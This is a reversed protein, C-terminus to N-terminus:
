KLVREYPDVGLEKMVELMEDRDIAQRIMSKFVHPKISMLLEKSKEPGIKEVLEKPYPTYTFFEKFVYPEIADVGHKDILMNIYDYNNKGGEDMIYGVIVHDLEANDVIAKITEPSPMYKNFAVEVVRRQKGIHQDTFMLLKEIVAATNDTFNLLPTIIRRLGDEPVNAVISRQQEDDMQNFEYGAIRNHDPNANYQQLRIRIYSKKLNSPLKNLQHSSIQTGTNVYQRILDKNSM